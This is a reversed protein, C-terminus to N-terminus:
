KKSYDIVKKHTNEHCFKYFETKMNKNILPEVKGENYVIIGHYGCYDVLKRFLLNAHFRNTNPKILVKKNDSYHHIYQNLSSIEKNSNLVEPECADLHTLMEPYFKDSRQLDEDNDLYYVSSPYLPQENETRLEYSNYDNVADPNLVRRDLWDNLSSPYRYLHISKKPQNHVHSQQESLMGIYKNFTIYEKM